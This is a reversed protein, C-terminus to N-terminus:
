AELREVFLLERQSYAYGIHKQLDDDGYAEDQQQQAQEQLPDVPGRELLVVAAVVVVLAVVDVVVALQDSVLLPLRLLVLIAKTFLSLTLPM